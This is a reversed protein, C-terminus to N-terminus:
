GAINPGGRVIESRNPENRRRVGYPHANGKNLADAKSAPASTFVTNERESVKLTYLFM